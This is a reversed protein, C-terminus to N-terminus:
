RSLSRRRLAVVGLLLALGAGGYTRGHPPPPGLACTAGDRADDPGSPRPGSVIGAGADSEGPGANEVPGAQEGPANADLVLDACQHYTADDIPLGYTFQTVQLTCRACEVDPLTVRQEVREVDGSRDQLYGLILEGEGAPLTTPDDAAPDAPMSRRVSFSDDGEDDFAVRFYSVHQVYVDWVVDITQGPRFVSVLAEVRGNDRQGCPGRSLNTDPAGPARPPPSILDIHALAPAASLALAVASMALPLLIRIVPVFAVNTRIAAIEL